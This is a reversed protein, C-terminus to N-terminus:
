MDDDDYLTKRDLTNNDRERLRRPLVFPVIRAYGNCSKCIFGNVRGTGSCELCKGNDKTDDVAEYDEIEDNEFNLLTGEERQGNVIYSFALLGVFFWADQFPNFDNQASTFIQNCSNVSQVSTKQVFQALAPFQECDIGFQLFRRTIYAAHSKGASEHLRKRGFGNADYLM